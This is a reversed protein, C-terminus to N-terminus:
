CDPATPAPLPPLKATTLYQHLATTITSLPAHGRQKLTRYISMLVAQTDAGQHSRNGYSNKRIIVAPRIAREGHNNDFPVAPDNLFTFLHQRHRRFRKMLRLAQKDTWPTALLEDLRVHLRNRRSVYTAELLDAQSRKLRMADHILRRLKKAFAPWKPSPHKYLEVHKLDRLLHALCVQRGGCVVANYAGWFDSVLTGQFARRFFRALVPRGRQRDILYYTGINNSFCWLWHGQGNVRWGTEDAHLVASDLIENQIQEYWLFLIEQLRYSQQILGGPTLKFQLHHNFVDVVASLPQGLGYHLWCSLTLVRNGITSGPLADPVVPEVLKRCSPCWDRHITHETVVPTISEPIDETFRKRTQSCRRLESQCDPCRAARHTKREDIHEPAPRRSGAHGAKRGPKKRGKAAAPKQHIPQMGSPTAPSAVSACKGEAQKLLQALQLLSFVVAEEGQAFIARAEDATLQPGLSFEAAAATAVAM